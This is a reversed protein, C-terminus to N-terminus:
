ARTPKLSSDRLFDAMEEAPITLVVSPPPPLTRLTPGEKPTIAFGLAQMGVGGGIVAGGVMQMIFHGGMQNWRMFTYILMYPLIFVCLLGHVLNDQFAGIIIRISYVFIIFGGLCMMGTGSHYFAQNMPLVLMAMAFAVVCALALFYVWAPAGQSLTKKVEAKDEAITQAARDLLIDAAEGFGQEGVKRIKAGSLKEGSELNLGCQVCMVANPELAAGCNPCRQGKVEKLGVEEFLDAIGDTQKPEEAVAGITLPQHCKPCLLTQGRLEDKATFSQGCSCSVKIPM